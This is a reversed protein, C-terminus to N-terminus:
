ARTLGADCGIGDDVGGDVPVLVVSSSLSGLSSAIALRLKLLIKVLDSAATRWVIYANLRSDYSQELLVM